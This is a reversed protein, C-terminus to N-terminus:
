FYVSFGRVQADQVLADVSRWRDANLRPKTLEVLNPSFDACVVSSQSLIEPDVQEQLEVAVIGVGCAHDVLDFPKTTSKGLGMQSLLLKAPPKTSTEARLILKEAEEPSTKKAFIKQLEALSQNAMTIRSLSAHDPQLVFKLDRKTRAVASCDLSQFLILLQHRM